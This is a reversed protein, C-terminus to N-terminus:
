RSPASRRGRFCARSDASCRAAAPRRSPRRRRRQRARRRRGRGRSRGAHAQGARRRANREAPPAPTAADAMGCTTTPRSRRRTACHWRAASPEIPEAFAPQRREELSGLRDVIKLLTDHIAEFTKTNREDSRRALEDLSRLDDALASVAASDPSRAPSRACRARPLKGRPRWSRIRPEPLRASSITQASARHGRIRAAARGAAVLHRSLASVQSELNRIIDPDVSTSRRAPAKWGRRSTKWGRKSRM